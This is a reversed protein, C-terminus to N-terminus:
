KLEIETLGGLGFAGADVVLTVANVFGGEGGDFAFGYQNDKLDFDISYYYMPYGSIKDVPEVRADKSITYGVNQIKLDDLVVASMIKFYLYDPIGTGSGFLITRKKTAVAKLVDFNGLEDENVNPEIEGVWKEVLGEVRIKSRWGNSFIAGTKNKSNGSDILLTGNWRDALAIRESIAVPTGGVHIAFFLEQDSVGSFDVTAQRVIDPAPIPAPNVANYIFTKLLKGDKCSYMRLELTGSITNVIVQDIITDTRQVKQVYIPNNVWRDNRNEFWDEYVEAQQDISIPATYNYKVFHLTNFDSRFISNAM